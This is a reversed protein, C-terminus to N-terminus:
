ARRRHLTTVPVLRAVVLGILLTAVVVDVTMQATLLGRTYTSMAAISGTGNTTFVGIAIFLADVHNLRESWEHPGTNLYLWAFTQVVTAVTMFTALLVEMVSGHRALSFAAGIVVMLPVFNAIVWWGYGHSVNGGFSYLLWLLSQLALV